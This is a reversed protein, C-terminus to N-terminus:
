DRREWGWCCIALTELMSAHLGLLVQVPQSPRRPCARGQGAGRTSAGELLASALLPDAGAWSTAARRIPALPASTQGSLPHLWLHRLSLRISLAGLEGCGAACGSASHLSRTAGHEKCDGARVAPARRASPPSDRGARGWGSGLAWRIPTKELMGERQAKPEEKRLFCFRM